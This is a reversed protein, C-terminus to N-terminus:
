DLIPSENAGTLVGARMAVDRASAAPFLAGAEDDLYPEPLLEARTSARPRLEAQV